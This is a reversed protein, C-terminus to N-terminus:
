LFIFLYFYTKTKNQLQKVLRVKVDPFAKALCTVDIDTPGDLLLRVSRVGYLADRDCFPAYECTADGRWLACKLPAPAVSAVAVLLFAALGGFPGLFGM